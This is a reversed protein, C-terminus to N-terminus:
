PIEGVGSYGAASPFLMRRLGILALLGGRRDAPLDLTMVTTMATDIHQIISQLPVGAKGKLLARFYAAISELVRDVTAGAVDDMNKRLTRLDIVCLGLRLDRLPEDTTSAPFNKAILLRPLLLGVRDLMRSAWVSRSLPIRETALSVMDQWGFRVLRRVGSEAGLVRFVRIVMITVLIGVLMALNTNAFGAFDENFDPTIAIGSIVGISLAIGLLYTSTRAMLLGILLMMPTLVLLLMPFGDIMPFIAFLYIAVNPMALLIYRFMGRLAPTPDDMHAFLSAFMGAMMAAVYGEPWATYIWLFGCVMVTIMAALSSLLAMGQDSHLARARAASALEELRPSAGQEPFLICQELERVDRIIEVLEALRACLSLQLTDNWSMNTRIPPELEQCRLLLSEVTCAPQSLGDDIMWQRVDRILSTLPTPLACTGTHLIALRDEVMDVVPLLVVMRDQLAQIEQTIHRTNATDYPLHTALIHLDTLDMAVRHRTHESISPAIGSLSDKVRNKVEQLIHTIKKQVAPMVPQPLILSHVLSACLVGLSIEEVRAVATAFLNTPQNVGPFGIIGVTYGALMYGYSRPTRDLLSLYLCLGIWCALVGILLEPSNIFYPVLVLTALLGGLTGMVRYAAKSRVAGSLPQSTIYVSLMAWFPRELNLSFAIALALITALFTKASFIFEHLTFRM